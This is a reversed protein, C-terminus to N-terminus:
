VGFFVTIRHKRIAIWFMSRCGHMQSRNKLIILIAIDYLKFTLMYNYYMTNFLLKILYTMQKRFLSSLVFYLSKKKRQICIKLGGSNWSSWIEISCRRTSAPFEWFCGITPGAPTLDWATWLVHYILNSHPAEPSAPRSEPSALPSLPAADRPSLGEQDSSSIRDVISSLCDLSSITSSAAESPYASLSLCFLM